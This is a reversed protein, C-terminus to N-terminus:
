IYNDHGHVVTDCFTCVWNGICNAKALIRDLILPFKQPLAIDM